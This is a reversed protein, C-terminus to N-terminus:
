NSCFGSSNRPINQPPGPRVKGRKANKLVESIASTLGHDTSSRVPIGEPYGNEVARVFAVFPSPKFEAGGGKNASVKLNRARVFDALELVMNNWATGERIGADHAERWWHEEDPEGVISGDQRAKAKKCALALALSWSLVENLKDGILGGAGSWEEEIVSVADRRAAENPKDPGGTLNSLAGNLARAAKFVHEIEAFRDKVLVAALEFRRMDLYRNVISRLSEREDDRFGQFDAGCRGANRYPAEIALWTENSPEYKPAPGEISSRSSRPQSSRREAGRARQSM